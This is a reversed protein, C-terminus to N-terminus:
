VSSGTTHFFKVVDGLNDNDYIYLDDVFGKFSHSTIRRTEIGHKHVFSGNVTVLKGIPQGIIINLHFWKSAVNIDLSKSISGYKLKYQFKAQEQVFLVGDDDVGYEDSGYEFFICGRCVVELWMAVSYNKASLDCKLHNGSLRLCMNKRGFRDMGFATSASLKLSSELTWFCATDLYHIPQSDSHTYNNFSFYQAHEKFGNKTTTTQSTAEVTANTPANTTIKTTDKTTMKTTTEKAPISFTPKANLTTSNMTTSLNDAALPQGTVINDTNSDTSNGYKFYLFALTAAAALLLILVGSLM